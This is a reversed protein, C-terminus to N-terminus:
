EPLVIPPSCAEGECPPTATVIGVLCIQPLSRYYSEYVISEKDKGPLQRTYTFFTEAGTYAHQCSRAGPALKTTEIIKTPGYPIWRRVVPHTFSAERGDDTGWLTFILEMTNWNIDTELLVYNATDNLFRFDPNPDYITADTGPLHNVPDNYYSVVLSHNRRETIKMGSNMAMRFLTTGIQCLGGGIEAKIEDGKIVLEPLYGGEITYPKTYKITSFEEGPKILVGNLKNVANQINKIRNSPSGAFDSTGVGLIETIGLDNVDGTSIESEAESIVLDVTSSVLQLDAGEELYNRNIFLNNLMNYNEELNVKFGIRSGQFETVKGGESILFKADQPEIDVKSAIEDKVFSIVSEKNLGFIVVGDKKQPEIWEGIQKINIEWTKRGRFIFNEANSFDYTLFLSGPLFIKNLADQTGNLDDEVFNPDTDERAVKVSPVVLNIWQDKIQSVAENYDFVVGVSSTTITFELPNTKTIIVGADVAEFEYESLLSKLEEKIKEDNIEVYKLSISPKGLASIINSVGKLMIGGSKGFRLIREAEAQIDTYVLEYSNGDAVVVPYLTTEKNGANTDFSINIGTGVLQDNKNQLFEKLQGETFGGINVNGLRLGPAVRDSYQIGVVISTVVFLAVFVGFVIASVILAIFAPSKKKKEQLINTM